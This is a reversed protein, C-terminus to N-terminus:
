KPYTYSIMRTLLSVTPKQSKSVHKGFKLQNDIVTGLLEINSTEWFRGKGIDKGTKDYKDASILLPYKEINLKM